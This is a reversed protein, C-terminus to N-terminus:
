AHHDGRIADFVLGLIHNNTQQIEKVKKDAYGAFCCIANLASAGNQDLEDMSIEDIKGLITEVFVVLDFLTCEIHSSSSKVQNVVEVPVTVPQPLNVPESGVGDPSKMALDKSMELLFSQYYDNGICRFASILEQETASLPAFPVKRKSQSTRISPM